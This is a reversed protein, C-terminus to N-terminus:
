SQVTKGDVMITTSNKLTSSLSIILTKNKLNKETELDIDSLVMVYQVLKVAHHEIHM